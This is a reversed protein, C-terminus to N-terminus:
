LDFMGPLEGVAAGENSNVGTLIPVRHFGGQRLLEDSYSSFLAGNHPPEIVPGYMIGELPNEFTIQLLTLLHRSIDSRTM